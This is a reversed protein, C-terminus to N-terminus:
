GRDQEVGVGLFGLFEHSFKKSFKKGNVWIPLLTVLRKLAWSM